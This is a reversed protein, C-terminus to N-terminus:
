SNEGELVAPTPLRLEAAVARIEAYLEPTLPVGARRADVALTAERAGPYSVPTGPRVPPCDVLAQFLGASEGLFDAVPRLAGPAVALALFGIDDDRGSPGGTGAYAETAPGLGAGPVLAALVEVLLALGYGKYAGTEPSGGLWLPFGEGRDLAGPDTVPRGEADQLWGEPIERGARAAERIKGTPVATTSMDLVYPPLDPGAPAAVSMPNTGLMAVRGGPPRAIRQRGCNSALVAVVDHRRATRETHHGACGFHTADRVSVLGVGYEAARRAALEMAEGAVWLGLGKHADWLVAAGRDALVEPEADPVARGDDFLPLYLRTLNALGHSRMGALDGYVLAEAAARARPRPVGRAAFVETAFGLLSDYPVRVATPAAADPLTTTM